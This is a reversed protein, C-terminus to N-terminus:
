DVVPVSGTQEDPGEVQLVRHSLAVSSPIEPYFDLAGPLWLSPAVAIALFPGPPPNDSSSMLSPSLQLSGKGGGFVLLRHQPLQGTDEKTPGWQLGM